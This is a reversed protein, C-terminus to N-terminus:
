REQVTALELENRDSEDLTWCVIDGMNLLAEEDLEIDKACREPPDLAAFVSDTM